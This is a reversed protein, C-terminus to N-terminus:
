PYPSTPPATVPMYNSEAPYLAAEIFDLGEYGFGKLGKAQADLLQIAIENVREPMLAQAPITFTMNQPTNGSSDVATEGITQGNVHLRIRQPSSAQARLTLNYQAQATWEKEDLQLFLYLTQCQTSRAPPEGHTDEALGIFIVSGRIDPM